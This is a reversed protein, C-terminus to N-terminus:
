KLANACYLLSWNVGHLSSPESLCTSIVSCPSRPPPFNRSGLVLFKKLYSWKLFSDASAAGASMSWAASPQLDARSFLKVLHLSEERELWIVNRKWKAWYWIPNKAYKRKKSFNLKRRMAGCHPLEICSCPLYNTLDKKMITVYVVMVWMPNVWNVSATLSAVDCEDGANLIM